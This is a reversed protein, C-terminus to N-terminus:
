EGENWKPPVTVVDVATCTIGKLVLHEDLGFATKSGEYFLTSGSGALSPATGTRRQLEDMVGSLAPSVLRAAAELNNVHSGANM